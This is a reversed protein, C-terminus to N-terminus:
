HSKSQMHQWNSVFLFGPNQLAHEAVECWFFPFFCLDARLKKHFRTAGSKSRLNYALYNCECSSIHPPISRWRSSQLLGNASDFTHSIHCVAAAQFLCATTTLRVPKRQHHYRLRALYSCIFFFPSLNVYFFLYSLSHRPFLCGFCYEPYCHYIVLVRCTVQSSFLENVPHRM